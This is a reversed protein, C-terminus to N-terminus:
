SIFFLVYFRFSFPVNAFNAPTQFFTGFLERVEARGTTNAVAEVHIPHTSFLAAASLARATISDLFVNPRNVHLPESGHKLSHFAVIFSLSSVLGNLIRDVVHFWFPNPAANHDGFYRNV